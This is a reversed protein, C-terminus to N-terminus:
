LGTHKESGKTQVLVALSGSSKELKQEYVPRIVSFSTWSTKFDGAEGVEVEINCKHTLSPRLSRLNWFFVWTGIKPYM